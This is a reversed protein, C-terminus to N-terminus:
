WLGDKVYPRAWLTVHLQVARSWADELRRLEEGKVGAAIFFTRTSITVITVFAILYRLPVLPQTGLHDTKNKKEPTHRLGIEEQYDLWAQDHPRFVADAVWQVFGAKVKAKYEEDQKVDPTAFWKALHPQAAIVKRWAGVMQEANQQFIDGHRQLTRADEETWGAAQEIERLDELTVPSHAVGPQGYDYGAITGDQLEHVSTSQSM